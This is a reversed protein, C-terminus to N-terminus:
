PSRGTNAFVRPTKLWRREQFGLDEHSVAKQGSPEASKCQGTGTLPLFPRIFSGSLLPALEVDM